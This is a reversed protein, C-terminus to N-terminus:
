NSALISHPPCMRDLMSFIELKSELDEPVAEIVMDAERVADEVSGAYEIRSLAADAATRDLKGLEIAKDLNTRIESEARRLNAPLIDELLTRFGGLAAAHAIGRGM